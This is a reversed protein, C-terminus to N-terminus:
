TQRPPLAVSPPVPALIFQSCGAAPPQALISSAMFANLSWSEARLFYFARMKSAISNGPKSFSVRPRNATGEPSIGSLPM